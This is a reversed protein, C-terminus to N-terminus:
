KTKSFVLKEEKSFDPQNRNAEIKQQLWEVIETKRIFMYEAGISQCYTDNLYDIINRLSTTGIGIESGAQFKKELDNEDLNFNKIDLTPSYKRRTRVPNTKTFLHGRSRYDNILNLVKFEAPIQFKNDKKVPYEQRAPDFGKFFHQWSEDVSDPDQLYKQYQQEIWQPDANNIYSHNDM